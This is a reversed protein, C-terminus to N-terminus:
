KHKYTTTHRSIRQGDHKKRRHSNGEDKNYDDINVVEKYYCTIKESKTYELLENYRYSKINGLNNM